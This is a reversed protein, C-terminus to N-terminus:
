RDAAQSTRRERMEAVMWGVVYRGFIDLIVYLYFYTWKVPGLLKTIDWSWVKNPSSALLQPKQYNPHRLQDRRERLESAQELIRYMTRISCLYTGEDWPTAVLLARAHRANGSSGPPAL